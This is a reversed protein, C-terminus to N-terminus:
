SPTEPTDLPKKSIEQLSSSKKADGEDSLRFVGTPCAYIRGTDQLAILHAEINRRAAPRLDPRQRPYIGSVLDDIDRPREHLLALISQERVLRQRKLQAIRQAPNEMPDGHSSLFRRWPRAALLDLSALYQDLRGRPSIIASSAWGMIHDGTLCLDGMAFCLHDDTHGPTHIAELEWGDGALRDGDRLVHDPAFLSAPTTFAFTPANVAQRLRPVLAIHDKHDHTLVIREVRATGVAALIAALHRDDDPGPDLITLREHGIIYTNTGRFTMASPNPALICRIAPELRLASGYPPETM